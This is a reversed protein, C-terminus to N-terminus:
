QRHITVNTKTKATLHKKKNKKEEEKYEMRAM